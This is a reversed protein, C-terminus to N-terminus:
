LTGLSPAGGSARGCLRKLSLHGMGLAGKMEGCSNGGGVHGLTSYLVFGCYGSTHVLLQIIPPM